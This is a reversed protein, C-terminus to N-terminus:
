LTRPLPPGWKGNLLTNLDPLCDPIACKRIGLIKYVATAVHVDKPRGFM